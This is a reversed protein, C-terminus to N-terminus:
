DTTQTKFISENKHLMIHRDLKEVLEVLIKNKMLYDDMSHDTKMTVINQFILCFFEPNRLIKGLRIQEYNKDQLLKLKMQQKGARSYIIKNQPYIKM